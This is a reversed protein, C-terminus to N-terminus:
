DNLSQKVNVLNRDDYILLCKFLRDKAKQADFEDITKLLGPDDTIWSKFNEVNFALTEGTTFALMWERLEPITREVSSTYFPRRTLPNYVPMPVRRTVEEEYAYYCIKGRLRIGAFVMFDNSVVGKPLRIYPIGGISFGWVQELDIAQLGEKTKISITQVKANLTQPNVFLEAYLTDWILSPQNNQFDTFDFYLGDAFKFNKTLVVENDQQANLPSALLLALPLAFAYFSPFPLRNFAEWITSLSTETRIM